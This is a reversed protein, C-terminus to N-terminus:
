NRTEIILDLYLFKCPSPMLGDGADPFLIRYMQNWRDVETQGLPRKRSRLRKEQDKTFGSVDESVSVKCPIPSTAHYTLSAESDFITSCRQCAIPRAHRRYVHERIGNTLLVTKTTWSVYKTRHVSDWGPGICSRWFQHREPDRKNFPCAFKLFVNTTLNSLEGGKKKRSHDDDSGEAEDEEDSNWRKKGKSMQILTPSSGSFESGITNSSLEANDKSKANRSNVRERVVNAVRRLVDKVFSDPSMNPSPGKQCDDTNIAEVEQSPGSGDSYCDCDESTASDTDSKQLSEIRVSGLAGYNESSTDSLALMYAEGMSDTTVTGLKATSQRAKEHDLLPESDRQQKPELDPFLTTDAGPSDKKRV